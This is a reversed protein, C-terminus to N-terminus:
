VLDNLQGALRKGVDGPMRSGFVRGYAQRAACCVSDQRDFIVADAEVCAFRRFAVAHPIHALPSGRNAAREADSARIAFPGPEPELKWGSTTPDNPAAKVPGGVM